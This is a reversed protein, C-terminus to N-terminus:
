KEQPRLTVSEVNVAIADVSENTTSYILGREWFFIRGDSITFLTKANPTNWGRIHGFYTGDPIEKEGGVFRKQEKSIFNFTMMDEGM